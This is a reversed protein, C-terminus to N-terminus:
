SGCGLLPHLMAGHVRHFPGGQSTEACLPGRLARQCAHPSWSRKCGGLVSEPSCACPRLGWLSQPCARKFSTPSPSFPLAPVAAEAWGRLFGTSPPKSAMSARRVGALLGMAERGGARSVKVQCHLLVPPCVCWGMAPVDWKMLFPSVGSVSPCEGVCLPHGGASRTYPTSGLQAGWM